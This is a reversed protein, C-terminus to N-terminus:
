FETSYAASIAGRDALFVCTEGRLGVKHFMVQMSTAKPRNAALVPMEIQFARGASAVNHSLGGHWEGGGDFLVPLRIFACAVVDLEFTSRM